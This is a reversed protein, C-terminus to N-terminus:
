AARRKRRKPRVAEALHDLLSRVCDPGGLAKVTKPDLLV